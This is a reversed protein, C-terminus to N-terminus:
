ISTDADGLLRLIRSNTMKSLTCSLTFPGTLVEAPCATLLSARIPMLFRVTTM